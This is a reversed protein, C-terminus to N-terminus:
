QSQSPQVPRMLQLGNTILEVIIEITESVLFLFGAFIFASNLVLILVILARMPSRGYGVSAAYYMSVITGFALHGVTELTAGGIIIAIAAFGLAALLTLLKKSKVTFAVIIVGIIQALQLFTILNDHPTNSYRTYDPGGIAQLVKAAFDATAISAFLGIIFEPIYGFIGEKSSGGIPIRRIPLYAPIM